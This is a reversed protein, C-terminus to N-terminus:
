KMRERESVALCLSKILLFGETGSCLSLGCIPALLVRSKMLVLATLLIIVPINPAPSFVIFFKM